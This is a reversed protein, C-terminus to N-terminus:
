AMEISFSNAITARNTFIQNFHSPDCKLWSNAAIQAYSAEIKFFATIGKFHLVYQFIKPTESICQHIQADVPEVSISM